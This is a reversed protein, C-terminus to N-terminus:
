IMEKIYNLLSQNRIYGMIEDAFAQLLFKRSTVEDLGRARLYFMAEPDLQGVTAGHKCKVDDAYIELEPKSEAEAEKSLLLHHNAQSANIKQASPHVQVKGSFLAHSKKDLIGKYLMKSEGHSAHHEVLLQSESIQNNEKLNYFGYLHCIAGPEAQIVHLNEEVTQGGTRLSFCEVLSEQAQHVKMIAKYKAHADNYIKHYFIRANQQAIIHTEVNVQENIEVNSVYEEVLTLESDKEAIIKHHLHPSSEKSQVFLLHIPKDMKQNKLLQIEVGERNISLSLLENIISLDSSEKSFNGDVFALIMSNTNRSRVKEIVDTANM